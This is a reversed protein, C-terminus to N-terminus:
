GKYFIKYQIGMIHGSGSTSVLNWDPFEGSLYHYFHERPSSLQKQPREEGVRYGGQSWFSGIHDKSQSLGDEIPPFHDYEGLSRKGPCYPQSRKVRRLVKNKLLMM